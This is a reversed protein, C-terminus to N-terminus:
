PPSWWVKADFPVKAKELLTKVQQQLGKLKSQLPLYPLSPLPSPLFHLLSFSLHLLPFRPLPFFQTFCEIAFFLAYHIYMPIPAIIIPMLPLQNEGGSPYYVSVMLEDNQAKLVAKENALKDKDDNCIQQQKDVIDSHSIVEDLRDALSCLPNISSLSHCCGFRNITRDCCFHYFYCIFGSKFEYVCM